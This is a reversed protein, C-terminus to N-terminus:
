ILVGWGLATLAIKSNVEKKQNDVPESAVKNNLDGHADNRSAKVAKEKAVGGHTHVPPHALHEGMKHYYIPRSPCICAHVFPVKLVQMLRSENDQRGLHQMM